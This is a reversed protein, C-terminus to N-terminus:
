IGIGYPCNIGRVHRRDPDKKNEYEKKKTCYLSDNCPEPAESFILLHTEEKARETNYTELSGM